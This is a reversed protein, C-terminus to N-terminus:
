SLRKFLDQHTKFYNQQFDNLGNIIRKIPM